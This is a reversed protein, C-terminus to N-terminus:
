LGKDDRSLIEQKCTGRLAGIGQPNMERQHQGGPKM